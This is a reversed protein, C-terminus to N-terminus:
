FEPGGTSPKDPQHKPLMHAIAIKRLDAIHANMAEVQGVSGEAAKPRFGGDWLAQILLQGTEKSIRPMQSEDVVMGPMVHHFTPNIMYALEGAAGTKMGIFLSIYDHAVNPRLAVRDANIVMSM